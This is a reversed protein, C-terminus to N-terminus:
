GQMIQYGASKLVALAKEFNEEKTLIYDMNFTSIAFVGIQNSALVKTIRSLIGILSFDLMGVIRFARWGDERNTTNGPTHGTECVLSLEQDTAATFTFPRSLDVDNYNTVKCVSLAVSLPEITILAAAKSNNEKNLRKRLNPMISRYHRYVEGAPIWIEAAEIKEFVSALVEDADKERPAQGHQEYFAKYGAYMWQYINDRQKQKLHSYKKNTQLLKGDVWEHNKM